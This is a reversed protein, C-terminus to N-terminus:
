KEWFIFNKILPLIILPKLYYIKQSKGSEFKQDYSPIKQGENITKILQANKNYSKIVKDVESYNFLIEIDEADLTEKNKIKKLVNKYKTRLLAYYSAQETGDTFYKEVIGNNYTKLKPVRHLKHITMILEITKNTLTHNFGHDKYNNVIENIVTNM